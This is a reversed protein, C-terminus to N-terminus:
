GTFAQLAKLKAHGLIKKHLINFGLNSELGHMPTHIKSLFCKFMSFQEYSHIHIPSHPINSHELLPFSSYLFWKANLWFNLSPLFKSVIFKQMLCVKHQAAFMFQHKLSDGSAFHVTSAMQGRQKSRIQEHCDCQHIQM